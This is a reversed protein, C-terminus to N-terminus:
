CVALPEKSAPSLDPLSSQAKLLPAEGTLGGTQLFALMRQLGAFVACLGDPTAPRPSPSRLRLQGASLRWRARWGAVLETQIISSFHSSAQWIVTYSNQRIDTSVGTHMGAACARSRHAENMRDSGILLSRVSREPGQLTLGKWEAHRVGSFDHTELPDGGPRM